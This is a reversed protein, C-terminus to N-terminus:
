ISCCYMGLLISSRASHYLPPACKLDRHLIKSAHIHHLGSAVMVFTEMIEDETYMQGSAKRGRIETFLDGNECFETVIHLQKKEFFSDRYGIVNPSNLKSLLAAEKVAAKDSEQVHVHVHTYPTREVQQVPRLRFCVVCPAGHPAQQTKSQSQCQIIPAQILPKVGAHWLM